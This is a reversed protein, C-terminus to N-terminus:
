STSTSPLIINSHIHLFYYLLNHVTNMQILIPVVPLSNHIRYHVKPNWLICPIEQSVSHNNAEWSPSQEKSSTIKDEAINISRTHPPALTLTVSYLKGYRQISFKDKINKATMSM